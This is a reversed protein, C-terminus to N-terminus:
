NLQLIILISKSDRQNLQNYLLKVSLQIMLSVTFLHLELDM